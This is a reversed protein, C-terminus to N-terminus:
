VSRSEECNTHQVCRQIYQLHTLNLTNGNGRLGGGNGGQRWCAYWSAETATPRSVVIIDRDTKPTNPTPHIGKAVSNVGMATEWTEM